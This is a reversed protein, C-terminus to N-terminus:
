RWGNIVFDLEIFKRGSAMRNFNDCGVRCSARLGQGTGEVGLRGGTFCCRDPRQVFTPAAFGDDDFAGAGINAICCIM